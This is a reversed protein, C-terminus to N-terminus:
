RKKSIECGKSDRIALTYTHNAKHPVAVAFKAQSSNSSHYVGDIYFSYPATGGEGQILLVDDDVFGINVGGQYQVVKFSACPDTGGGGNNNQNSVDDWTVYAERIYEDFATYDIWLYGDNGWDKGWSNIIKFASKNDDYGVILVCHTGNVLKSNFGYWTEEFRSNFGLQM